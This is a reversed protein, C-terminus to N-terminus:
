RDVAEILIDGKCGQRWVLLEYKRTLVVIGDNARKYLPDLEYSKSKGDKSFKSLM